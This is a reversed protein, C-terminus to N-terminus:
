KNWLVISDENMKVYDNNKAVKAAALSLKATEIAGKKDGLKAQVLSKHRLIYFPKEKNLELSKDVYTLAKKYDDNSQFYYQSAAFYDNASPGALAKEISAMATKQTPVEFKVSVLTKEWSIDLTAFNNDLNNIALTFSEIPKSLQETKVTTKVSVKEDSWTDPLGWHDTESYFFVDWTEAKPTIYIAYSGKKLSKGDIMVDDSFTIVSSANAGTRWPKGFPVLDGFVTRGKIGPRSYTITVDTLGVTQNVTAKPSAAPTKVQADATFSALVVAFLVILKKMQIIKKIIKLNVFKLGVM